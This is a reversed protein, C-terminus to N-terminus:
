RDRSTTRARQFRVAQGELNVDLEALDIQMDERTLTRRKGGIQNGGKNPIEMKLPGTVVDPTFVAARRHRVVGRASGPRNRGDSRPPGRRCKGGRRTGRRWDKEVFENIREDNKKVKEEGKMAETLRARCQESHGQRATGRLIPRAGQASQRSDM